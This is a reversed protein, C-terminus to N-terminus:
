SETYGATGKRLQRTRLACGVPARASLLFADIARSRRELRRQEEIANNNKKVFTKKPASM